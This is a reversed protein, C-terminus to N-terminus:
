RIPAWIADFAEGIVPLAYTSMGIADIILATLFLGITGSTSTKRAKAKPIFSKIKKM